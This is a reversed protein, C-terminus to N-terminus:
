APRYYEAICWEVSSRMLEAAEAQERSGAPPRPVASQVVDKVAVVVHEPPLGRGKLARVFTCVAEKVATGPDARRRLVDLLAAADPDAPPRDPPPYHSPPPTM